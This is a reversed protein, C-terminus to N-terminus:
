DLTKKRDHVSMRHKKNRKLLNFAAYGGGLILMIGLGGDIPAPKEDHQLPPGTPPGDPSPPQSYGLVPLILFLSGFFLKKAQQLILNKM